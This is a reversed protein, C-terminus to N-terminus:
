LNIADIFKGNTEFNLLKPEKQKKGFLGGRKYIRAQYSMKGRLEIIYVEAVKFGSYNKSITDKIAKPTYEGEVYWRKETGRNSYCVMQKVDDNTFTVNFNLSDVMFWKVNKAEPYNKDFDAVYNKSVQDKSVSKQAFVVTQGLLVVALIVFLRKMYQCNYFYYENYLRSM